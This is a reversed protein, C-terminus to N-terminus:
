ETRVTFRNEGKSCELKNMLRWTDENLTSNFLLNYKNQFEKLKSKYEELSHPEMYGFHVLYDKADLQSEVSNTIALKALM